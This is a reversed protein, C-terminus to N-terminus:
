PLKIQRDRTSAPDFLEVTTRHTAPPSSFLLRSVSVIVYQRSDWPVTVEYHSHQRPGAAIAFLLGRREDSLSGWM